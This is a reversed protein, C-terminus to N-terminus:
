IPETLITMTDRYTIYAAWQHAMEHALMQNASTGSKGTDNPDDPYIQINNMLQFGKLRGDSGYESFSHFIEKGIGDVDNRVDMHWASVDGMDEVNFNTYVSIFDYNDPYIEYFRKIAVGVKEPTGGFDPEAEMIVIQGIHEVRSSMLESDNRSHCFERFNQMAREIESQTFVKCWEYGPMLQQENVYDHMCGIFFVSFFCISFVVYYVQTKM